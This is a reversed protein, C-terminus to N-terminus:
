HNCGSLNAVRKLLIQGDASYGDIKITGRLSSSDMKGDGQQPTGDVM